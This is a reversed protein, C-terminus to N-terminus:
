ETSERCIDFYSADQRNKMAVHGGGTVDSGTESDDAVVSDGGHGAMSRAPPMAPRAPHSTVKGSSTILVRTCPLLPPPPADTLGDPVGSLPALAMAAGSEDSGYAVASEM